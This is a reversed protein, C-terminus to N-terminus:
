EEEEIDEETPLQMNEKGHIQNHCEPCLVMINDIDTKGGDTYREKHHYEPERHHKFPKKCRECKQHKSFAQIKKEDSIQRRDDLEALDFKKLFEEILITKRLGIIKESWGGRVNDFFRQYSTNSHRFDEDYVKKHFDSVFKQIDEEKGQLSYGIRLERVMSYVALIWAHKELYDYPGKDVPFCKKLFNLNSIANKFDRYNEDMDKFEDFFQYLQNSGVQKVGYREYFLIRAADPYVGYRGKYVAISSSMFPHDAIDRMRQVISGPMANLREGLQLPKGRQLRSFILRVKEDNYDEMIKTSIEYDLFAERMEDSIPNNGNFTKGYNGEGSFKKNLTIKNDYFKQITNLRQQGDVIYFVNEDSKFNLFILPMPEGNIITDILCQEDEKSWADPPRQYSPDVMYKHRENVYKQIKM